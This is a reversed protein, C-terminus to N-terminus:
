LTCVKSKKRYPLIMDIADYKMECPLIEFVMNSDDFLLQELSSMRLMQM